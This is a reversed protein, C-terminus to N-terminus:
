NKSDYLEIMENLSIPPITLEHYRDPKAGHIKMINQWEVGHGNNAKMAKEGYLNYQVQHALEHVLIENKIITEHFIFFKLSIDIRNLTYFSMGASRTYRGNLVIKPCEFVALRPHSRTFKAWLLIARDQLSKQIAARNM